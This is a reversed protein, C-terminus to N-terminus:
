RTDERTHRRRSETRLLAAKGRVRQGAAHQAPRPSTGAPNFQRHGEVVINRARQKLEDLQV